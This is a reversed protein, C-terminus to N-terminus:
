GMGKRKKWVYRYEVCLSFLWLFLVFWDLLVDLADSGGKGVRISDNAIDGTIWECLEWGKRNMRGFKCRSSAVGLRTFFFNVFSM